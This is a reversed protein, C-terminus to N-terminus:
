AQGGEIANIMAERLTRGDFRQGKVSLSTQGFQAGPCVGDLVTFLSGTSLKGLLAHRQSAPTYTATTHM